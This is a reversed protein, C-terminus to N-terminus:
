GKDIPEWHYKEAMAGVAARLRDRLSVPELVEVNMGYQLAWYFFSNENCRLRVTMEPVAGAGTTAAIKDETDKELIKFDKGFWDILDGMMSQRARIKIPVSEGSFMYVHEAMHQPLSFGHEYGPIEKIPKRKEQLVEVDTMRDLRFYVIDAFGEDWCMLYYRSNNAITQYPSCIHPNHEGPHQKFDMGYLNHTFRIKRNQEIADDIMDLSYMIQKNDPHNMEPLSSIHSVKAKFYRNSQSRLKEILQRAQEQSIMRSFLVSDILMRLEADDFERSMLCNGDEMSIDYGLDILYELNNKVTRRDCEMSYDRKLIEIIELQTLRHEPDTYEKLIELILMNVMRKNISSDM